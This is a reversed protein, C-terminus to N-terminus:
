VLLSVRGNDNTASASSNTSLTDDSAANQQADQPSSPNGNSLAQPQHRHSGSQGGPNSQAMQQFFASQNQAHGNHSSQQQSGGSPNGNTNAWFANNGQGNEHSSGSQQQGAGLDTHGAIVVSLKDVSIGQSELSQRLSQIKDHLLNQTDPNSVILRASVEQQANSTLHLRVDGLNDPNLRIVLEKQGNQIGYQTGEVVQDAVSQASAHFIPLGAASTSPASSSSTTATSMAASELQAGHASLLSHLSITGGASVGDTSLSPSDDNNQDGFSFGKGFGASSEGSGASGSQGAVPVVTSTATTVDTHGNGAQISSGNQAGNTFKANIGRFAAPYANGAMSISTPDVTELTPTQPSAQSPIVTTPTTAQSLSFSSQANDAPTGSANKPLGAPIAPGHANPANSLPLTVSPLPPKDTYNHNLTHGGFLYSGPVEFVPNYVPAQADATKGQDSEKKDSKDTKGPKGGSTDTAQTQTGDDTASVVAIATPDDLSATEDKPLPQTCATPTNEQSNQVPNNQNDVSDADTTETSTAETLGSADTGKAQVPVSVDASAANAADAGALQGMPSEDSDADAQAPTDQTQNAQDEKAATKDTDSDSEAKPTQADPKRAPTGNAARNLIEGFHGFVANDPDSANGGTTEPKPTPHAAGLGALQPIPPFM